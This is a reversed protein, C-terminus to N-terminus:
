PLRGAKRARRALAIADHVIREMARQRAVKRALLELLPLKERCQPRPARAPDSSGDTDTDSESHSSGYETAFDTETEPESDSRSESMSGSAADSGSLVESLISGISSVSAAPSSPGARDELPGCHQRQSCVRGHKGLNEYAGQWQQCAQCELSVGDLFMSQTQRLIEDQLKREHQTKFPHRCLTCRRKQLLVQPLCSKCVGHKMQNCLTHQVLGTLCITCLMLRDADAQRVIWSRGDISITTKDTVGTQTRTNARRRAGARMRVPSDPGPASSNMANARRRAGARTRVPSDSGPTSINMANARRRAGARTQVSSDPGPTSINMANARRKAGARTQVTSGPGPLSINM